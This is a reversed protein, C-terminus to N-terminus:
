VKRGEARALWRLQTALAAEAETATQEDGRERARALRSELKAVSERLRTVLLPPEGRSATRTPVTSDVRAQVAALRRDFEVALERPIWGTTPWQAKIERLRRRAGEPDATPDLAEAATLLEDRAQRNRRLEADRAAFAEGRRQFFRDQAARFRAWLADDAQKGARGAQKWAATLERMRASTAAWDSSEALATAQGILEEKAALVAARQAAVDAFHATRRSAFEERAASLRRWLEADAQREGPDTTRWEAVIARLREGAAKWSSSGALREAEEVLARRAATAAARRAARAAVEERLLRSAEEHLAALRRRLADIDGVIRANTLGERARDVATLVARAHSSDAALRQELLTVDAALEAYRREYYALGEEAPGAQWSGVSREGEATRVYVTGDEAVRGWTSTYESPM